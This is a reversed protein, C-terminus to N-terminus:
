KKVLNINTLGLIDATKAVTATTTQTPASILKNCLREVDKAFTKTKAKDRIEALARKSAESLSITAPSSMFGLTLAATITKADKTSTTVSNTAVPKQTDAFHNLRDKFIEFAIKIRQATRYRTANLEDPAINLEELFIAIAEQMSKETNRVGYEIKSSSLTAFLTKAKGQHSPDGYTTYDTMDEIVTTVLRDYFEVAPTYGISIGGRMKMYEAHRTEIEPFNNPNQDYQKITKLLEEAKEILPIKAENHGKPGTGVDWIRQKSSTDPYAIKFAAACFEGLQKTAASQSGSKRDIEALSVCIPSLAKLCKQLLDITTPAVLNQGPPFANNLEIPLPLVELALKLAKTQHSKDTLTKAFTYLQFLISAVWTKGLVDSTMKKEAQYKVIAPWIDDPEPISNFILMHSLKDFGSKPSIAKKYLDICGEFTPIDAINGNVSISAYVKPWDIKSDTAKM